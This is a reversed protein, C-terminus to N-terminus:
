LPMSGFKKLVSSIMYILMYTTSFWSSNHSTVHLVFDKKHAVSSWCKKSPDFARHSPSRNADFAGSHPASCPDFARPNGPPPSSRVQFQSICLHSRSYGVYRASSYSYFFALLALKVGERTSRAGEANGLVARGIIRLHKSRLSCRSCVAGRNDPSPLHPCHALCHM